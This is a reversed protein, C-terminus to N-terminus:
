FQVLPAGAFLLNKALKVNFKQLIWSLHLRVFRGMRNVNIENVQLQTPSMRPHTRLRKNREWDDARRENRKRRTECRAAPVSRSNSHWGEMTASGCRWDGGPTPKLSDLADSANVTTRWHVCHLRMWGSEASQAARRLGGARTGQMAVM